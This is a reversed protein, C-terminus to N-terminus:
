VRVKRCKRRRGLEGGGENVVIVTECKVVARPRCRHKKQGRHPRHSGPSGSGLPTAPLGQGGDCGFGLRGDACRGDGVEDGPKGSGDHGGDTGEWDEGGPAGDGPGRLPTASPAPSATPEAPCLAPALDAFWM